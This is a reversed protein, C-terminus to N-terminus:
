AAQAIVTGTSIDTDLVLYLMHGILKVQWLIHEEGNARQPDTNVDTQNIGFDAVIRGLSKLGQSFSVLEGAMRARIEPTNKGKVYTQLRQAASLQLFDAMRRRTIETLGPNLNTTVGSRFRFGSPTSELACIGGNKLAIYDGRSLGPQTLSTIGALVAETQFSGPHIDVDVQSLIAAMWIAPNQQFALSTTPDITYPSNYCWIIRDSTTTIAAAEASVEASQGNTHVNAWTLFIRDAVTPAITVLHSWVTAAVPVAEPILVVGVGPFNALDDLGTNYDSSAVSGDSGGTALAAGAVDDPTGDALKVLDIPRAPDTGIVQALNNNGTTTDLNQYLYDRGLYHATLNFHGSIGDTPATVDVTIGLGWAGVSSANVQVIPTATALLQHSAKSAAAAAVRRIVVTGFPKNLMAAWGQGIITGGGGYDRGGFINLFDASSTIITPTLPGRVCATAMGVTSLDVGRIFGAPQKENIYLGELKTWDAPNTSFYIDSM